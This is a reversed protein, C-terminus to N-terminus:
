YIATDATYSDGLAVQWRQTTEVGTLQRLTDVRQQWLDARAASPLVPQSLAVDIRAVRDQLGASLALATASSVHPEPLQALVAELQASEAYLAELRQADAARSAAISSSTARATATNRAKAPVPAHQQGAAAAPPADAAADALPPTVLSAGVPPHQTPPPAVAPAHIAAVPTVPAAPEARWHLLPIVAALALAAAMAMAPRQLRRRTTRPVPIPTPLAHALRAWGDAPPTAPPLVAFADGWDRPFPAPARSDPM